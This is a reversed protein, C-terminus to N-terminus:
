RVIGRESKEIFDIFQQIQPCDDVMTLLKEIAAGVTLEQRYLVKYARKLQLVTADSFGHRKLGVLNLGHVQALQGFVTVFPPVDKAIASFGSCFSYEGIRCFQHIGVFGALNVYDEITVHGALTANNSFTTHNGIHCDHAVHVYAMFYNDNGISTKGGGGQTGRSITINERFINRDGITLISSQSSQSQKNQGDSGIVSFPYIKNEKGIRTPGTIVVHPGISCGEGIEVSEGIISFPGITVNDAIKAAPHIIAKDSIM